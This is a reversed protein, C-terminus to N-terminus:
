FYIRNVERKCNSTATAILGPTETNPYRTSLLPVALLGAADTLLRLAAPPISLSNASTEPSDVVVLLSKRPDLM